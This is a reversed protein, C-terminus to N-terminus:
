DGLHGFQAKVKCEPCLELNLSPSQGADLIKAKMRKIMAKSGVPRGCETCRAIKDKFLVTAPSDLKDPELTRELHLCQEPCLEICQGCAVCLNHKFLLQYVDVEEGSTVTLAGTPCDFACLCCGTCADKDLTVKGLPSAMKLLQRRSIEGKTKSM